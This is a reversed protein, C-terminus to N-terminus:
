HRLKNSPLGVLLVICGGLGLSVAAVLLGDRFTGTSNRVAGIVYPGFFGGLNGVSNILAIGAAAGAGDLLSTAMAWFPGLMANICLIAVSISAIVVGISTALAAAVLSAAGTLAAVAVHWRREDSRDSHLGVFIMTVAAAVYPIAALLGIFFSGASSLSHILTPLWLSIGYSCTNLGFYILCLLWVGSIAFASYKAFTSKRDSNPDVVTHILWSREETTLWRAEGPADTLYSLVIVGLVLAPLGEALFLFQWGALGHGRFGLLFGSLPGGVVGSVPGAAMFCAVTRAQVAAPFWSKVYFIMGPFFGAEAAGLLFRLIYFGKPTSVFATSASIVGWVMMLLCIWRRAGVRELALNSPVQFFLYGVFFMGAGLGYVSDSFHLQKQMQLAAFGVNIRDLYAVIYLLFLFPVIRWTLKSLVSASVNDELLQAL